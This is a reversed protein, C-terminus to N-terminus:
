FLDSLRRAMSFLSLATPVIRPIPTAGFQAVVPDSVIGYIAFGVCGITAIVAWIILGRLRINGLGSIVLLPVAAAVTVLPGFVLGDTAPWTKDDAAQYLILLALGQVLGIGLRLWPVASANITM